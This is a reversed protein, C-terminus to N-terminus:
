EKVPVWVGRQPWYYAGGPVALVDGEKPGQMSVGRDDCSAAKFLAGTRYLCAICGTSPALLVLLSSTGGEQVPVRELCRVV